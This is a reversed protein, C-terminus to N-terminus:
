LGLLRLQSPETLDLELRPEGALDDAADIAEAILAAPAAKRRLLGGAGTTILVHDLPGARVAATVPDPISPACCVLRDVGARPAAELVTDVVESRVRSALVVITRANQAAREILDPDVADGVAVFAGAAVWEDRRQSTPELVRVEDGQGVLRAVVDLDLDSGGTVVLIAM